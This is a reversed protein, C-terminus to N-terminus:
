KEEAGMFISRDKLADLERTESSELEDTIDMVTLYRERTVFKKKALADKKQRLKEQELFDWVYVLKGDRTVSIDRIQKESFGSKQAADLLAKMENVFKQREKEAKARKEDQESYSQSFVNQNTVFPVNWAFFAFLLVLLCFKRLM